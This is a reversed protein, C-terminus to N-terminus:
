RYKDRHEDWEEKLWLYAEQTDGDFREIVDRYNMHMRKCMDKCFYSFDAKEVDRRRRETSRSSYMPEDEDYRRRRQRCSRRRDYSEMRRELIKDRIFNRAMLFLFLIIILVIVFKTFGGSRKRSQNNGTGVNAKNKIGLDAMLSGFFTDDDHDEGQTLYLNDTAKASEYNWQAVEQALRAAELKKAAKRERWGFIGKNSQVAVFESQATRVDTISQTLADRAEMTKRSMVAKSDEAISNLLEGTESVLSEQQKLVSDGCGCLLCCLMICFVIKVKHM